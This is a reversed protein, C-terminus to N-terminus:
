RKMKKKIGIVANKLPRLAVIAINYYFPKMDEKDYLRFVTAKKKDKRWQGFSIRGTTVNGFDDAIAIYDHYEDLKQPLHTYDIKLSDLIWILPMNSGAQCFYYSTGDNRLNFEYFYAKDELMGFEVSFLGHFNIQSLFREIAEISISTPIKNTLYGHTGDGGIDWRDKMLIGPLIVKGEGTRCGYVLADYKKPIYEQLVFLSEKSVNDIVEKLEAENTCIKTKFAKGHGLRNKDPKLLCPYKINRIDTNWQCKMSNPILFGCETALQNMYNKDLVKTLLGSQETGTLFFYPELKEKNQDVFEAVLDGTTIIFPKQKEDKFGNLLWNLGEDLSNTQHLRICYRSKVACYKQRGYLLFTVEGLGHLQRLLGLPNYGDKGWIIIKNPITNEM